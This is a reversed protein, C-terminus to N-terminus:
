SVKITYVYSLLLKNRSVKGSIESRQKYSLKLGILGLSFMPVFETLTPILPGKQFIHV